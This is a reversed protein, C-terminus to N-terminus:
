LYRSDGSLVDRSIGNEQETVVCLEGGGPSHHVSEGYIRSAGM